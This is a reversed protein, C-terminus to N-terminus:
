TAPKITTLRRFLHRATYRKLCRVAERTSKGESVRRDIYAITAPHRQQRRSLVIMHIANNLARDGSRDLRYRPTLGTSAPIPAVGAIRAWAAENRIRGAHSFAILLRAATIPGVGPEDRLTPALLDVLTTIEHDLIRIEDRAALARQAATRLAIIRGRTAADHLPHLRLRACRALLRAETLGRLEVSLTAPATIAFSRLQVVALRRTTVASHRTAILMRLSDRLEGRRPQANHERALATRAARLADIADTKAHARRDRTLRHIELVREGRAALFRALSAGYSGSGEIAWARPGDAHRAVQALMAAFARETTATTTEHLPRGLADVVAVAHADRHTDVGVVYAVEDALM